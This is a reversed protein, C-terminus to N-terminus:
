RFHRPLFSFLFFFDLSTPIRLENRKPCRHQSHGGVPVLSGGVFSIDCAGYYGMLEGMTDGVVIDFEENTPMSSTRAVRFGRSVCMDIVGEFREPHRPSLVLM